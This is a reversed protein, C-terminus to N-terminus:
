VQHLLIQRLHFIKLKIVYKHRAHTFKSEECLYWEFVHLFQEVVKTKIKSFCIHSILIFCCTTTKKKYFKFKTFVANRTLTKIEEKAHNLGNQGTITKFTSGVGRMLCM